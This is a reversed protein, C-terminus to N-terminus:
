ENGMRVVTVSSRPSPPRSTLRFGKLWMKLAHWHIAGIVKLTLLPIRVLLSALMTDSFPQKQGSLAAVILPGDGDSGVIAVSIGNSPPAVRFEYRMDMKMFPSVYFAKKCSQRIVADPGCAPILYSHREGFTNRVEYLIAALTGDLRHCFYISIPNFGYGFIRPMCFLRIAGGELDLGAAQLHTEVQSRLSMTTQDGHDCDFFSVANFRNRSFFLLRKDLRDIDDLDFLTWFVSHRLRHPKPRLRRHTVSGVYIASAPTM